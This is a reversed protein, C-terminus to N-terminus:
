IEEAEVPELKAAENPKIWSEVQHQGKVKGIEEVTGDELIHWLKPDFGLEILWEKNFTQLAKAHISQLYPHDKYACFTKTSLGANIPEYQHTVQFTEIEVGSDFDETLVPVEVNDIATYKWTIIM